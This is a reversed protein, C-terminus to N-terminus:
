LPRRAASSAPRTESRHVDDLDAVRERRDRRSRSVVIAAIAASFWMLAAFGITM